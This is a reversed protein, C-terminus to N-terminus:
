GLGMSRGGLADGGGVAVADAADSVVDHEDDSLMGGPSPIPRFKVAAVIDDLVGANSAFRGSSANASTTAVLTEKGTEVYWTLRRTGAPLLGPRRTRSDIRVARRRAVSGHSMSLSEDFGGPYHVSAVIADFPVPALQVHIALGPAETSESLTFPEPHFFRCPVPGHDVTFWSAPFHVTYAGGPGTCKKTSALPPEIGAARITVDRPTGCGAAMVLLLLYGGVALRINV